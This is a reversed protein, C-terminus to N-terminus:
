SWQQLKARSLLANYELQTAAQLVPQVVFHGQLAHKYIQLQIQM